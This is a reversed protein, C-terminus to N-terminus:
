LARYSYTRGSQNVLESSTNITLVGETYSIEAASLASVTTGKKCIAGGLTVIACIDFTNNWIVLASGIAGIDTVSKTSGTGKYTGNKKNHSGYLDFTGGGPEGSYGQVMNKLPTNDTDYPIVRIQRAASSASKRTQMAAYSTTQAVRCQNGSSNEVTIIANDTSSKVKLEGKIQGSIELDGSIKGGSQSLFGAGDYTVIFPYLYVTGNSTTDVLATFIQTYANSDIVVEIKAPVNAGGFRTLRMRPPATAIEMGLDANLKERLSATLNATQAPNFVVAGSAVTSLATLIMSVVDKFTMTKETGDVTTLLFDSDKLGIESLSTFTNGKFQESLKKGMEASLASTKGGTTLDNVIPTSGSPIAKIANQIGTLASQAQTAASTAQGLYGAAATARADANNAFGESKNAFGESKSASDSANKAYAAALDKSAEASDAYEKVSSAFVRSAEVGAAVAYEKVQKGTVHVSGGQLEGPMLFDDYIDPANQLDGVKVSRLEGTTKDAM